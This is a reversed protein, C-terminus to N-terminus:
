VIGWKRCYRKKVISNNLFQQVEPIDMIPNNKNYEKLHNQFELQWGEFKLNPNKNPKILFM